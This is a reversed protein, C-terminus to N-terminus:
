SQSALTADLEAFFGHEEPQHSGSGSRPLPSPPNAYEKGCTQTLFETLMRGYHLGHPVSEGIESIVSRIFDVETQLASIHESSKGAIAARLFRILVRGAAFWCIMPFVGLYALNHSTSYAEYLLNLIARAAALVKCSSICGNHGINAHGEHLIIIAFHASSIATLLSVDIVGNALPDKLHSPFSSLYSTILKDIEIFAPTTQILDPRPIGPLGAPDPIFAPDGSQKRKRYRGNFIKVKSLLMAAKVHLIFSDVQEDLHTDVVGSEISWQRDRPPVLIGHEFHDGRVPLMQCVDEDDLFMAFNNIAAFHREMLYAIWFTNRRMEDELVDIAPPIISSRAMNSSSISEYPPCVNLGCPVAYRLSVSFTVCAESWRANYWYWLAIIVQAQLSGFLDVTMRLSSELNETAAKIQSEAFTGNLSDATSPSRPVSATYMSGLACMAHLIAPLPFKPHTPPLALSALFTPAHFMRGALPTFTFFADVLHRLTTYDPLNRPWAPNILEGFNDPVPSINAHLEGFGAQVVNGTSGTRMHARDGMLVAVGALDDLGSAASFGAMDMTTGNLNTDLNLNDTYGLFLSSSNYSGASSSAPTPDSGDPSVVAQDKDLLLAELENIRSELREFRNKPSDHADPVITENIEDFTCEPHPPLETGPPAHTVAYSYSRICTSCAPRKADCKLKRRRCQHCAQNRRLVQANHFPTTSSRVAAATSSPAKPM